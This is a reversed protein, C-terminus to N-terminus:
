KGIMQKDLIKEPIIPMLSAQFCDPITCIKKGRRFEGLVPKPTDPLIPAIRKVLSHAASEALTHGVFCDSLVLIVKNSIWSQM